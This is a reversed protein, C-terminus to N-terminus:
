GVHDLLQPCTVPGGCVVKQAEFLARYTVISLDGRTYKKHWLKKFGNDTARIGYKVEDSLEAGEVEKKARGNKLDYKLWTDTAPIRVIVRGDAESQFPVAQYGAVTLLLCFTRIKESTTGYQKVLTYYEHQEVNAKKGVGKPVDDLESVYRFVLNIKEEPDQIGPGIIQDLWTQFYVQRERLAALQVLASLPYKFSQGGVAIKGERTVFLM